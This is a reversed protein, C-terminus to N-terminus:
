MPVGPALLASKEKLRVLLARITSDIASLKLFLWFDFFRSKGDFRHGITMFSVKFNTSSYYQSNVKSKCFCIISWQALKSVILCLFQNGGTCIKRSKPSYAMQGASNKFGFAISLVIRASNTLSLSASAQQFAVVTSENSM